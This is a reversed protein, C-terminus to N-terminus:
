CAAAVARRRRWKYGLLALMGLGLLTLSSPEPVAAPTGNVQFLIIVLWGTHHQNGSLDLFFLSFIL